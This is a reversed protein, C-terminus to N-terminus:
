LAQFMKSVNSYTHQSQIMLFTWLPSRPSHLRDIWRSLKRRFEAMRNKSPVAHAHRPRMAHGKAEPIPQFNDGGIVRRMVM